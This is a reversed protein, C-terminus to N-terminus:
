AVDLIRASTDILGAKLSRGSFRTLPGHQARMPHILLTCRSSRGPRSRRARTGPPRTRKTRLGGPPAIYDFARAIHLAEYQDQLERTKSTAAPCTTTSSGAPM